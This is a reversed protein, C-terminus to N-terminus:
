ESLFYVEVPESLPSVQDSAIEPDYSSNYASVKFYFTLGKRLFLQRRDYPDTVYKRSNKKKSSPELKVESNLSIIRNDVCQCLKRGSNDSMKPCTSDQGLIPDLYNSMPHKERGETLLVPMKGNPLEKLSGKISGVMRNPGVGYHIVYGGNQRVDREPNPTWSLCVKPGGSNPDEDELTGDVISLGMPKVPPITERYGFSIEELEPSRKGDPDAKLKALAQYFKFPKSRDKWVKDLPIRYMYFRPNLTEEPSKHDSHEVEKYDEMKRLDIANWQVAEGNRAFSKPSFRLYLELFSSGPVKAKLILYDPISNSYKTKYVPSLATGYNTNATFSSADYEQGEYYSSLKQLDPAGKQVLFDDLWGYFNEAIRFPTTDEPHFGVRVIQLKSPISKRDMETGNLYLVIEKQLPRIHVILHNWKSRVLRRKSVIKIDTSSKDSPEFFNWFELVPLEDKIRFEWGFKKGRTHISKSILVAEKDLTGPLLFMSIFFEENLDSSTLISKSKGSIKIGSRKGAFRASRKGSNAQAKEPLYSAFQIQHSGSKDRLESPQDEEFDLFLNASLSWDRPALELFTEGSASKQVRLDKLQFSSLAFRNSETSIDTNTFIFITLLLLFRSHLYRKNSM